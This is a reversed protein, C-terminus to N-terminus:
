RISLLVDFMQNAIQMMKGAAQYAQQYRLLNTAEEDLNVGSESQQAMIAQELMQGEAKSTVQLERTKNGVLSVLKNFAGGYTTTGNAMTNESQLGALLLANRNDSPGSTTNPPITFQDGVDPAGSLQFEMGAVSITAGDTYPVPTGAGYTTSVGGVTVTVAEAAPFGNLTGSGDDYSLAMAATLPAGAYAQTVRPTTIVGSGTNGADSAAGLVPAGAAIDNVDSIAVDFSAAGNFTPKILFQDGVTMSGSSLSIRVGDVNQPMSSFTQTNGDSLRTVVYNSGDYQLRYNSATLANTDVIEASVSADGDNKTNANVVPASLKFFDGGPQGDADLAQAHQANFTGALSVAILGLENQITDLSQSRFQLLGGIVGGSLTNEALLTAGAGQGQYAVELRTPDTPSNTTALSYTQAGVVIPMGTGVFVNYQGGDQKVVTTKIQKSLEAVLQDRQDMLDNPPNGEASVAKGIADNLKAIEQAYSNVLNVSATLQSNVGQRLNQLQNDLAHFRNALAEAQSLMAQRASTDGADGTLTQISNFFGQLAPSLGGASDALMNDIQQMQAGYTSLESSSSQASNVQATLLENFVRQVNDVQTGQGIFGYGYNQALASSQIVVQRSYGPTNANAINHGTVSIGAQAAALASRGINLINSAM